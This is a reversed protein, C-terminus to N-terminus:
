SNAMGGPVYEVNALKFVANCVAMFSTATALMEWSEAIAVAYSSVDRLNVIVHVYAVPCVGADAGTSIRKYLMFVPTNGVPTESCPPNLSRNWIKPPMGNFVDVLVPDLRVRVVTADGSRAMKVLTAGADKFM